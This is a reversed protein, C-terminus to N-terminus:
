RLMPGTQETQKKKKEEASQQTAPISSISTGTGTSTNTNQMGPGTSTPEKSTLGLMEYGKEEVVQGVVDIVGKLVDILRKGVAQSVM